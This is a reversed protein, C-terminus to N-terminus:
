GARESEDAAMQTQRARMLEEAHMAKALRIVEKTPAILQPQRSLAASAGPGTRALYNNGAFALPPGELRKTEM